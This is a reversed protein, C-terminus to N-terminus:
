QAEFVRVTQALRLEVINIFVKLILFPILCSVSRFVKKFLAEM